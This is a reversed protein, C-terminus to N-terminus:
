PIPPMGFGVIFSTLAPLLLLWVFAIPFMAELTYKLIDAGNEWLFRFSVLDFFITRFAKYKTIILFWHLFEGIFLAFFTTLAAQVALKTSHKKGAKWWFALGLILGVLVAHIGYEQDKPILYANPVAWLVAGLLLMLAIFIAARWWSAAIITYQSSRPQALFSWREVKKEKRPKDMAALARKARKDERAAAKATATRQAREDERAAAKVAVAPEAPTPPKEELTVAEPKPAAGTEPKLLTTMVDQLLRDESPAAIKAKTTGGEPPPTQAVEEQPAAEVVDEAPPTEVQEQRHRRGVRATGAALQSFDDDPGRSLFDEQPVIAPEGPPKDRKGRGWKRESSKVAAPAAPQAVEDDFPAAERPPQPPKEEPLVSVPTARREERTETPETFERAIESL